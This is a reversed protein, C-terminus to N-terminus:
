HGENDNTATIIAAAAAHWSPATIPDPAQAGAYHIHWTPVPSDGWVPVVDAVHEAARPTGATAHIRIRGRHPEAAAVLWAGGLPIPAPGSSGLVAMLSAIGDVRDVAASAHKAGAAFAETLAAEALARAVYRRDSLVAGPLGTSPDALCWVHSTERAGPPTYYNPVTAIGVRLAAHDDAVEATEVLPTSSWTCLYGWWPTETNSM